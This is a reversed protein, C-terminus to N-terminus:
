RTSVENYEYGRFATINEAAAASIAPDAFGWM